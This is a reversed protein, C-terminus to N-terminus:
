AKAVPFSVETLLEAEPTRRPDNLYVERAPGAKRYGGGKIWAEREGYVTEMESYPGKYTTAAALGGPVERAVLDDKGELRRNVPVCLEMEFDDPDFDPGYYLAFPPGSPHEGLEGLYAFLAGFGAGIDGAVKAMSTRFRKGVVLQAPQEMLEIKREM